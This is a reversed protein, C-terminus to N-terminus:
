IQQTEKVKHLMIASALMLLAWFTFAYAPQIDALLNGIPPGLFGGLSGLTWVIGIATGALAAGVGDTEITMTAIIAYYADRMFGGLVVLLWVLIGDAISFLGFSICGIILGPILIAKRSNLKGSILTLPIAALMGAANFAALAGDAKAPNWASERLYLSLYGTFGNAASGYFLASVAILWVTKLRIIQVLVSSFSPSSVSLPDTKKPITERITVMWVLGFLISIIGYFFLVNKWGGLLPSMITDSIMAGVMYGFAMGSSVIGNAIVVQRGKFWIGASKHINLSLTMVLIGFLFMTVTLGLFSGSFGRSAGAIGALICGASITYKTGFRDGILGGALSTFVGALGGMGWITGLQVLTLGLEESIENFLVAMCVYPIAVVFINTLSALTLIFWRYRTEEIDPM